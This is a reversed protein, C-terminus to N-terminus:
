GVHLIMWGFAAIFAVFSFTPAILTQRTATM